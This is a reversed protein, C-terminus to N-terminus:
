PMRKKVTSPVGAALHNPPVDATVAAGSAIYAGAGVIVGPNIVSNAGLTAGEGICAYGSIANLPFVTVFDDLVVDHGLTCNMNLQAHEGITVNSSVRTGPCIVTGAGITVGLGITTDPHILTAPALGADMARRALWRRTGGDGIAVVFATGSPLGAIEAMGGLHTAGIADLKSEDPHGDDIFGLFRYHGTADERTADAIIDTLYSFVGRGFGGAGIIVIPTTM